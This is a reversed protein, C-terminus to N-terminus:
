NVTAQLYSRCTSNFLRSLTHTHLVDSCAGGAWQWPYLDISAAPPLQTHTHWQEQSPPAATSDALGKSGAVSVYWYIVVVCPDEILRGRRGWEKLFGRRREGEGGSEEGDGQKILGLRGACLRGQM